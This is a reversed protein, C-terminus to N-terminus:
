VKSRERLQSMKKGHKEKDPYCNKCIYFNTQWESCKKYKPEMLGGCCECDPTNADKIKKLLADIQKETVNQSEMISTDILDATRRIYCKGGDVFSHGCKCPVWHHVSISEIEDGCRPCVGSNQIIRIKSVNM